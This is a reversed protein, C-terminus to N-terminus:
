STSKASKHLQIFAELQLQQAQTLKGFRVGCRRESILSDALLQDAMVEIPMRGVYLDRDLYVDMRSDALPLPKENLYRFAMGGESINILHYPLSLDDGAVAVLAQELAPFRPHLRRETTPTNQETDRSM